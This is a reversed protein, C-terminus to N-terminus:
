SVGHNLSIKAMSKESRNGEIGGSIIKAAQNREEERQQKNGIGSQHQHRRHQQITSHVSSISVVLAL